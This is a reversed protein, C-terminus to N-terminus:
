RRLTPMIRDGGLVGVPDDRDVVYYRHRWRELAGHPRQLIGPEIQPPDALLRGRGSCRALGEKAEAGLDELDHLFGPVHDCCAAIAAGILRHAKPPQGEDGGIEIVSDGREALM